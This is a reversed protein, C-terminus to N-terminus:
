IDPVGKQAEPPRQTAQHPMVKTEIQMDVHQPRGLLAFEEPDQMM